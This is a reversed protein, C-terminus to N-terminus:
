KDRNGRVRTSRTIDRKGTKMSQLSFDAGETRHNIRINQNLIIKGNMPGSIESSFILRTYVGEICCQIRGEFRIDNRNEKEHRDHCIFQHDDDSHSNLM